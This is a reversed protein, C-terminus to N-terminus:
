QRDECDCPHLKYPDTAACHDDHARDFDYERPKASCSESIKKLISRRLRVCQNEMCALVDLRHGSMGQHWEGFYFALERQLTMVFEDRDAGGCDTEEKLLCVDCPGSRPDHPTEISCACLAHLALWVARKEQFGLELFNDTFNAHQQAVIALRERDVWAATESEIDNPQKM